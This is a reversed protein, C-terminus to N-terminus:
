LDNSYKYIIDEFDIKKMQHIVKTQAELAEATGEGYKENIAKGFKYQQGNGPGNCEKCQGACNREDYRTSLFRRSQFHGNDVEKWHKVKHCTVCTVMDNVSDRRRIWRSFAEDALEKLRKRSRIKPRKLKRLRKENAKNHVILM